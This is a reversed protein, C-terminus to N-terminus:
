SASVMVELTESRHTMKECGYLIVVVDARSHCVREKNQKKPHGQRHKSRWKNEERSGDERSTEKRLRVPNTTELSPQSNAITVHRKLLRQIWVMYEWECTVKVCLQNNRTWHERNLLGTNPMTLYRKRRNAIRSQTDCTQVSVLASYGSQIFSISNLLHHAFPWHPRMKATDSHQRHWGYGSMLVKLGEARLQSGRRYQLSATRKSLHRHICHGLEGDFFVNSPM